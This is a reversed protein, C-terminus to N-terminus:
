ASVELTWVVTEAKVLWSTPRQESFQEGDVPFSINAHKRLGGLIVLGGFWWRTPLQDKLM